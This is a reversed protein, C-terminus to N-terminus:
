LQGCSGSTFRIFRRCAPKPAGSQTYLGTYDFAGRGQSPVAQDRWRFWAVTGINWERRNRRLMEYTRTLQEAQGKRGKVLFRFAEGHSAWGTETIWLYRGRDGVDRLMERVRLVAGKVGRHDRAYPHLSIVDFEQEIGPRQYLSSLFSAPSFGNNVVPLGALAITAEPDIARINNSTLTVLRAYEAPNVDLEETSFKILNPENWAQWDKIARVGPRSAYEGGPGYRAVLARVFCRYAEAELRDRTYPARTSRAAVYNPSGVIVPLLRLQNASARSVMRDYPAWDYTVGPMVNLATNCTSGRAPEGSEIQVWSFNTRFVEANARGMGAVDAPTLDFSDTLGARFSRFDASAPAALLGAATLATLAAIVYARM